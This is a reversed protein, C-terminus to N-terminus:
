IKVSEITDNSAHILRLTSNLNARLHPLHESEVSIIMKKDLKIKTKVPNEPYFENDTNVSDFIAKTNDKADVTIKASFKLTM